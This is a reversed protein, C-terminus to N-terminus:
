CPPQVLGMGQYPGHCGACHMATPDNRSIDNCVDCFCAHLLPRGAVTASRLNCATCKRKRRDSNDPVDVYGTVAFDCRVTFGDGKLHKSKELAERAMFRRYGMGYFYALKLVQRTRIHAPSQKEVEDAFSLELQLSVRQRKNFKHLCIFISIFGASEPCDGNPFLHLMWRYGGVTFPRSKFSTGNPAHKAISYGDIQLLHSGFSQVFSASGGSSTTTAM